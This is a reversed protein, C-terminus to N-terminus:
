SEALVTTIMAKLTSREALGIIRAAVRGEADLVVTSPMAQLPVLGQLAAVGSADSDHLTPYPLEFTREFALATAPEDTHNVGLFRVGDAELEASLSALDPAEKRCPPCTAYWFNLVVPAGRWEALDVADGAMTQGALEVPDTRRDPAWETATGDGSVYSTDVGDSDEPTEDSSCATLAGAGLLGVAGLLVARRSTGSM